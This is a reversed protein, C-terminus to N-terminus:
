ETGATDTFLQGDDDSPSDEEDSSQVLGTNASNSHPTMSTGEEVEMDEGSDSEVTLTM